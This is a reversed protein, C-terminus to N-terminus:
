ILKLIETNQSYAGVEKIGLAKGIKEVLARQNRPQNFYGNVERKSAETPFASEDWTFNPYAAKLADCLSPYFNYLRRGGKKLIQTKTVTYWDTFQQSNHSFAGSLSYSL